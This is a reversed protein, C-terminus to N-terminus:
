SKRTASRRCCRTSWRPFSPPSFNRSRACRRAPKGRERIEDELWPGVKEYVDTALLRGFSADDIDPLPEAAARILEAIDPERAPERFSRPEAPRRAAEGDASWGYDGILPVFMVGGLDQEEFSNAGTRTVKILRQERQGEGVPIVLRGGIDLQELLTQPISPGGAAVLIADFPAAEVWGHTGDGTRIEVNDYGLRQLREAASRTLDDHREIAFVRDAIRSMVAAAYGSGAGIELVRDGPRVAAAAIMLAVIYPQSITQGAEIPLPADEYAFEKLRTPVFAERPVERMAELVHPDAVGRGAIQRMVMHDRAEPLSAM